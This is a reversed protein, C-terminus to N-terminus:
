FSTGPRLIRIRFSELLNKEQLWLKVEDNYLELNAGDVSRIATFFKMVSEPINGANIKKWLTERQQLLDNLKADTGVPDSPLHTCLNVIKEKKDNISSITEAYDKNGKFVELIVNGPDETYKKTYTKWAM